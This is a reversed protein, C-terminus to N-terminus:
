RRRSRTRATQTDRVFARLRELTAASATLPAALLLTIVLRLM